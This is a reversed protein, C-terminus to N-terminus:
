MYNDGRMWFLICTKCLLRGGWCCEQASLFLEDCWILVKCFRGM